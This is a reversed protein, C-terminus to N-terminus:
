PLDAALQYGIGRVSLIRTPNLPDDDLKKRLRSVRLDISRDFGDFKFGHLKEFLEGRSVVQGANEALLWLLDFEATSVALSKGCVEVLRRGRDIKLEGVELVQEEIEKEELPFRRLHTRLRALLVRPSVPKSLYDDAGFELGTVEDKEDNRATILIIPGSYQGRVERCVNFGDKGPLNVDLLVADPMEDLIKSVALDGQTELNVSFGHPELYEVVLKALRVDDEILLIRFTQKKDSLPSMKTKTQYV